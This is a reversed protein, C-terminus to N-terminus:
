QNSPCLISDFEEIILKVKEATKTYLNIDKLFTANDCLGSSGRNFIEAANRLVNYSKILEFFIYVNEDELAPHTIIETFNHLTLYNNIETISKGIKKCIKIRTFHWDCEFRPREIVYSTNKSKGLLYYKNDKDEFTGKEIYSYDEVDKINKESIYNAYCTMITYTTDKVRNKKGNKNLITDKNITKEIITGIICTDDTKTIKVRKGVQLLRKNM